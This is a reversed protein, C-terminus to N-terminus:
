LKACPFQSFVRHVLSGEPQTEYILTNRLAFAGHLPPSEKAGAERRWAPATHLAAPLRPAGDGATRGCRGNRVVRTGPAM